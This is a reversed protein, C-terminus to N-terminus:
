KLVDDKYTNNGAYGGILYRRNGMVMSEIGSRSTENDKVAVKTCASGDISNV